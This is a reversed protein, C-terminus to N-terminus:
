VKTWEYFEYGGVEHKKAGPLGHMYTWVKCGVPLKEAVQEMLEPYLYMTVLKCQDLNYALVDGEYM